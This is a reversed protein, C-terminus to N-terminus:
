GSRALAERIEQLVEPNCESKSASQLAQRAREDTLNGLAWAATGRIVASHDHLAAVLEPIAASDGHNGLVVIANRRMGEHGPRELPTGAFRQQFQERDMALMSRADAPNLDAQPQYESRSTVPAKTNWPCVDQCLDCGFMWEGMGGRLEVPIAGKLEITLYSICKRADLVYPAVFANTPCVDLCRTCTGCHSTAHPLDPELDLDTLLAALLLWSGARKNILMTNKGFWGLGALRGFDRELLPATDVVGRTTCGPSRAHMRDSLSRLRDRLLDHYDVTGWAYRAIRGQHPGAPLPPQTRYNMALMVISVVRPSVHRPHEYAAERRPLYQMEGAFGAKM